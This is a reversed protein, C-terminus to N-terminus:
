YIFEVFGGVDYTISGGTLTTKLTIGTNPKCRINTPVIVAFGTTTIGASTTGTPFASLTQSANNEDTFAVQVTLTGALIVTVNVYSSVRFSHVTGDNPTTYATMISTQASNRATLDGYTVISPLGASSPSKWTTSTGTATLIEGSSGSNGSGDFLLANLKINQSSDVVTAGGISLSNGYFNSSSDIVPSGGIEFNGTCIFNSAEITGNLLVNGSGDITAAGGSLRASGDNGIYWNNTTSNGIDTGTGNSDNIDVAFVPSALNGVAVIGGSTSGNILFAGYGATNGVTLPVASINNNNINIGGGFYGYGEPYFYSNYNMGNFGFGVSGDSGLLINSSSPGAGASVSGAFSGSGNFSASGGDDIAWANGEIGFAGLNLDMIAGNYPVYGTAISDALSKFNNNIALGGPGIPDPTVVNLGRYTTLSSM